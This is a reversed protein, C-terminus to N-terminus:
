SPNTQPDEEPPLPTNYIKALETLDSKGYSMGAADWMKVHKVFGEFDPEKAPQYDYM